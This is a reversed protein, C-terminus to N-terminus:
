GCCECDSECDCESDCDCDDAFPVGTAETLSDCIKKAVAMAIDQAEFYEACIKNEAMKAQAANLEQRQKDSAELGDQQLAYIKEVRDEIDQIASSAEKDNELKEAAKQFRAFEPTQLIYDGFEKIKQDLNEM